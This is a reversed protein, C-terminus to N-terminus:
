INEILQSARHSWSIIETDLGLTTVSKTELRGLDAMTQAGLGSFASVGDAGGYIAPAVHFVFEDILDLEYFSKAVTAGGEVLVQLVEAKGLNSLLHLLSGHFEEAPLVQSDSPINGLVVRRPSRSIGPLRVNLRPNDTGVTGSGVVIVDSAARIWQVRERAKEGTIWNSGGDNAAIRGDLTVALKLVVWPLGTSRQKLYPALQEKVLGASVGVEVNVGHDRLQQIGRGNVREDPDIVGIFVSAVGAEVIATVCPPTKGQHSCPELTVFLASGKADSGAQELASVEAHCMGPSQTHGFYVKNGCKLAAGVWPNPPAIYRAKLAESIALSMFETQAERRFEEDM